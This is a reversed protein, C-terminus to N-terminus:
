SDGVGVILVTVDFNKLNEIGLSSLTKLFNVGVKEEGAFRQSFNM